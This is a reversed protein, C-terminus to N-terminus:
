RRAEELEEITGPWDDKLLRSLSRDALVKGDTQCRPCYNWENESFRIRQVLTGCVPCPKGFKGHVAFEPRFATVDGPGPFRDGFEQQLIDTWQSLTMRTSTFLRAIDHDTMRSTLMVPSLKAAHLIEDSYANGIGDFFRPDTLSRKVTHNESRLRSSFEFVDGTLVSMGGPDHKALQDEGRVVHISARKKPSSEVLLLTGSDEFDFSALGVKGPPKAGLKDSWRFRGAIMLHVVLFLEDADFEFVIRKGIRRLAVVRKGEIAEIPPDFTRLVFPSVVRARGLTRGVLRPELAHLYLLIDPLEPLAAFSSYRFGFSSDIVFGSHRIILIPM